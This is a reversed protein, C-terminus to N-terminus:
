VLRSLIMNWLLNAMCNCPFMMVQPIFVFICVSVFPWFCYSYKLSKIYSSRTHASIEGHDWLSNLINFVLQFLPAGVAQDVIIRYVLNDVKVILTDIWVVTFYGNIAGWVMFQFVKSLNFKMKSYQNISQAMAATSSGLLAPGLVGNFNCLKDYNFYITLSVVAEVVLYIVLKRHVSRAMPHFHLNLNSTNSDIVTLPTSKELDHHKPLNTLQIDASM